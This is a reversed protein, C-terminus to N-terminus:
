WKGEKIREYKERDKRVKPPERRTRGAGASAAESRRSPPPLPPPEEAPVVEGAGRCCLQKRYTWALRDLTAAQRETVEPNAERALAAMDRAFGKPFRGVPYRLPGLAIARRKELDTMPRRSSAIM